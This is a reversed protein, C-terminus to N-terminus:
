DITLFESTSMLAQCLAQWAQAAREGDPVSRDKLFEDFRVLYQLSRDLEATTPPRSYAREFALTIRGADDLDTRALLRLAWAASSKLVVVSNMMFLAQSAVTTPVRRGNSASPDAFDFAQFPAYLGSRIVPLYVSRVGANYPDASETGGTSNVYEHNKTPLRTGGMRAELDGSVALLADRVAEAEIRKRDFRWYQQNDPDALAAAEDLQTSMQYTSTLMMLRHMAKISWGSEVFRTALWDLLESHTPQEGLRGFNDPSRVLGQGFHWQWIRNVMVRATLPHDPRALWEALELRGSRDDGIPQQENGAVVRLFRRPVEEGLTTHNGRIHIKLNTPKQDEVAMAMRKPPAQKELEKLSERLQALKQKPEATLWEELKEPLSIPGDAADAVQRFANLAANAQLGEATAAMAESFLEQYRKALEAPTAPKLERELLSRFNSTTTPEVSDTTNPGVERTALWSAFVSNPDTEAKTLVKLWTELIRPHLGRAKALSEHSVLDSPQLGVPLIRPVLALKDLHPIPGEPREIRVTLPGAKLTVLGAVVWTQTDPNWSGTVTKAVQDGLLDGNVLLRLPRSDAAAYRIEVQHVGPQDITLDYEAFNPVQGGNLIIGIGQGYNERDVIVNARTFDEAERVLQGTTSNATPSGMIPHAFEAVRRADHAALLYDSIRERADQRVVKEANVLFSNVDEQSATVLKQHAEQALREDSTAVSRENWMAVVTHNQMSRTSKFMGALSYYDATPLPDFKHDHCRACGLTLGMFVKGVTDVQEDIIDMEMKMPDDEALMKPGLVLFGTGTLQELTKAESTAPMLDGAIQEKLFQDYPKDTNFSAIVYDRYRWANAYAINEDMGNSDAFRALDLWHRGWREGYRPSELLRDVLKAFADPSDDALFATVEEPTPPLGILDFTARRILNRKSAQPAHQLGKSELGGLIFRDIQSSAWSSDKLNPIPRDQVPQFAWFTRPDPTSTPQVAPVPAPTVPQAAEAPWPAGAQVWEVLAAIEAESLKGKPPMKLDGSYQVAQILLSAEPKGPVLVEGTDGGQTLTEASDLRLGGKAKEGDHCRQCHEILLPRVKKEFHELDPGDVALLGLALLIGATM